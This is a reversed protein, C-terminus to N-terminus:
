DMECTIMINCNNVHIFGLINSYYRVPVVTLFINTASIITMIKIKYISYPYNLIICFGDAQPQQKNIKYSAESNGNYCLPAVIYVIQKNYRWIINTIKIKWFWYACIVKVLICSAAWPLLIHVEQLTKNKYFYIYTKKGAFNSLVRKLPM